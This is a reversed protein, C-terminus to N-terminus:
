VKNYRLLAGCYEEAIFDQIILYLKSINFNMYGTIMRANDEFIRFKLIIFKVRKKRWILDCKRPRKNNIIFFSEKISLALRM